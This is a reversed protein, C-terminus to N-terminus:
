LVILVNFFFFPYICYFFFLNSNKVYSDNFILLIISYNDM